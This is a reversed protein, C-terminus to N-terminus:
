ADLYGHRAMSWTLAPEDVAEPRRFANREAEAGQSAEKLM